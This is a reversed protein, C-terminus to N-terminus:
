KKTKFFTQCLIFRGKQRKLGKLVLTSGLASADLTLTAPGPTCFVPTKALKGTSNVTSVLSAPSASSMM